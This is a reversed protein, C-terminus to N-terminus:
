REVRIREKTKNQIVRERDSPDSHYLGIDTLEMIM